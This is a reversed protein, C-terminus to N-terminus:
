GSAMFIVMMTLFISKWFCAAIKLQRGVASIPLVLMFRRGPSTLLDSLLLMSVMGRAQMEPCRLNATPFGILRGRQDGSIVEGSMYLADWCVPLLESMVM